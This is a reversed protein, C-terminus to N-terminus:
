QAFLVIVSLAVLLVYTSRKRSFFFRPILYFYNFYFFSILFLKNVLEKYFFDADTFRIRFFLLPLSFFLLWGLIHAAIVLLLQLRTHIRKYDFLSYFFNIINEKSM